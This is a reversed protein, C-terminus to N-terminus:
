NSDSIQRHSALSSEFIQSSPSIESVCVTVNKLRPSTMVLNDEKRQIETINYNRIQTESSSTM